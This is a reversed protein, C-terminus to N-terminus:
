PRFVRFSRSQRTGTSIPVTDARERWRDDEGVYSAELSGGPPNSRSLDIWAAFLRTPHRREGLDRRYRQQRKDMRGACQRGRSSPDQHDHRFEVPFRTGRCRDDRIWGGRRPWKYLDGQFRDPRRFPHGCVPLAGRAGALPSHLIRSAPSCAIGLRRIEMHEQHIKANRSYCLLIWGRASYM